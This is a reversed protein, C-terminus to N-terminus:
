TIKSNIGKIQGEGSKNIIHFLQGPLVQLWMPLDRAVKVKDLLLGWAGLWDEESLFNLVTPEEESAVTSFVIYM